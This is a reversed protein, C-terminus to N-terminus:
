SHINGNLKEILRPCNPRTYTKLFMLAVRGEPTFFSRRGLKPKLIKRILEFNEAVKWHLLLKKIRGLERKEFTSRYPDYFDFETFGFNLAIEALKTGKVHLTKQSKELNLKGRGTPPIKIRM